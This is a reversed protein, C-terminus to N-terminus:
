ERGHQLARTLEDDLERRLKEYSKEFDRRVIRFSVGLRRAIEAQSLGEEFYLKLIARERPSLTDLARKVELQAAECDFAHDPRDEAVLAGLWHSEHPLRNSSRISWEAAVNAAMKFLYAQPHEVIQAVDYRLLRLFVEQAVDDFDAPRVAGRHALFRRLPTRWRRFWDALSNDSRPSSMITRNASRHVV